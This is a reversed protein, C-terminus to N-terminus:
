KEAEMPLRITVRLGGEPRNSLELKGNEARVIQDVITLGLGMGPTDRRRAEDLRVFPQLVEGISEDDIGPGDDEVTIVVQHADTGLRLTVNGAYHLANEVLNSLVRRLNLARGSMELHNPGDYRADYGRDSADDILTSAMAAVDIRVVPEKHDQGENFTQLSQLLLRMEMVDKVMSERNSNDLLNGELRMQLRALPTGLDHAIASVTLQRSRILEHIREQMVNFASILQRVERSGTPTIPSADNSGVRHTADVLKRLPQLAKRLLLAGLVALLITPLVLVFVRETNFKWAENVDASFSVISGDSLMLSGGVDGGNGFPELHLRLGTQKLDPERALIQERLRNLELSPARREMKFSWDAAFRETNVDEVVAPRAEPSAQDLVRYAVVLQDSMRSADEERLSFENAREFVFANLLFDLAVVLIFIGVLRGLLGTSRIPKM